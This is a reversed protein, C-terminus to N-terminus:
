FQRAVLTFSESGRDGTAENWILHFVISTDAAGATAAPPLRWSRQEEPKVRDFGWEDDLYLVRASVSKFEASDYHVAYKLEVSDDREPVLQCSIKIRGAATSFEFPLRGLEDDALRAMGAELSRSCVQLNGALLAIEDRVLRRVRDSGSAILAATDRLSEKVVLWWERSHRVLCWEEAPPAGLLEAAAVPDEEWLRRRIDAAEEESLAGAELLAFDVDLVSSIGVYTGAQRALRLLTQDNM